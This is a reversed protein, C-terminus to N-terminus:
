EKFIKYKRKYIQSVILIIIIVWFSITTIILWYNTLIAILVCALIIVSSILNRVSLREKLFIRAFVYVFLPTLVTMLLTTLVIGNLTYSYYLILRYLVSFVSLFLIMWKNKNPISELRPRFIILTIIFVILCRLFYFTFSSYYSLIFTSFSLELAFFLSGLIGAILYKDYKFHTRKIHSSILAISGILALILNLYNRDKAYEIFFFSLFFAILITMLPQMLRIPEMISVEEKKASYCMLLNALISSIIIFAFILINNLLYAEPKIDWLFFIFPLMVLVLGLFGYVTYNIYNIKPSKLIKKDIITGVGDIISGTIPVVTGISELISSIIPIFVM